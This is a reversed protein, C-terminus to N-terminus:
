TSATKNNKQASITAMKRICESCIKEQTGPQFLQDATDICDSGVPESWPHRCLPCILHAMQPMIGDLKEIEGANTEM